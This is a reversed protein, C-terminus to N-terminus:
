LISNVNILLSSVLNKEEEKDDDNEQKNKCEKCYYIEEYELFLNEKIMKSYTPDKLYKTALMNYLMHPYSPGIFNSLKEIEKRLDNVSNNNQCRKKLYKIIKVTYYLYNEKVDKMNLFLDFATLCQM